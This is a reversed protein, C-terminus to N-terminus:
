RKANPDGVGAVKRHVAMGAANQATSTEGKQPVRPLRDLAVTLTPVDGVAPTM